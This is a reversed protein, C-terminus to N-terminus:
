TEWGGTQLAVKGNGWAGQGLTVEAERQESDRGSARTRGELTQRQKIEM